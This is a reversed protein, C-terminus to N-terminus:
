SAFEVLKAGADVQEGEAFPLRAVRGDRPARIEHEMKMAELVLLTAGKAVEEGERAVVRLIKGPMPALLGAEEASARPRGGDRAPATPVEYTEGDCWVLIRSGAAAARVRVRRGDFDVARIEGGVFIPDAKM